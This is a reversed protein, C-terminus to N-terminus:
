ASPAPTQEDATVSEPEEETLSVEEKKEESIPDAVPTAVSQEVKKASEDKKAELARKAELRRELDADRVDDYNRTTRKESTNAANGMAQAIYLKDEGSEEAIRKLNRTQIWKLTMLSVLAIVEEDVFWFGLWAAFIIVFTELLKERLQERWSLPKAPLITTLTYTNVADKGSPIDAETAMTVVETEPKCLLVTRKIRDVVKKRKEAKTTEETTTDFNGYQRVPTLSLLRTLEEETEIEKLPLGLCLWQKGGVPMFRHPGFLRREMQLVDSLIKDSAETTVRSELLSDHVAKTIINDRRLDYNYHNLVFRRNEGDLGNVHCSRHYFGSAMIAEHLQLRHFPDNIDKYLDARLATVCKEWQPQLKWPTSAKDLSSKLADGLLVARDGLFPKADDIAALAVTLQEATILSPLKVVNKPVVANLFFVM